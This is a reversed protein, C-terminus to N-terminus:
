WWVFWFFWFEEDLSIIRLWIIQIQILRIGPLLIGTAWCTINRKTDTIFIVHWQFFNEGFSKYHIWGIPRSEWKLSIFIELEFIRVECNEITKDQCDQYCFKDPQWIKIELILEFSWFENWNSNALYFGEIFIFRNFSSFKIYILSNFKFLNLSNLGVVSHWQLPDKTQFVFLTRHLQLLLPTKFLGFWNNSSETGFMPTVLDEKFNLTCTWRWIAAHIKSVVM